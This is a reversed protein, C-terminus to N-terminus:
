SQLCVLASSTAGLFVLFTIPSWIALKLTRNVVCGKRFNSRKQTSIEDQKCQLEGARFALYDYELHENVLLSDPENGLAQIDGAKMGRWVLYGATALLHLGMGISAFALAKSSDNNAGFGILASSSVLISALIKNSQDRLSDACALHFEQNQAIEDAIFDLKEESLLSIDLEEMDKESYEVTSSLGADFYGFWAFLGHWGFGVASTPLQNVPLPFTTSSTFTRQTPRIQHVSVNQLFHPPLIPNAPELM